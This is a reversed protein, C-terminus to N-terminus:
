KHIPKVKEMLDRVIKNFEEPKSAKVIACSDPIKFLNDNLSVNFEVNGYDTSFIEKGNTDYSTLKYIFSDNKGIYTICTAPFNHKFLTKLQEPTKNSKLSDPMLNMFDNYSDEDPQIKQTVIFCAINNYSGDSLSYTAHKEFGQMGLRSSKKNIQSDFDAKVATNGLIYFNGNSNKINISIPSYNEINRSVYREQRQYITGDPNSKNYTVICGKKGTSDIVTSKYSMLKLNERGKNLIDIAVKSQSNDQISLCSVSLLLFVSMLFILKDFM